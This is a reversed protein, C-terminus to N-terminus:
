GYFELNIVGQYIRQLISVHCIKSISELLKTPVTAMESQLQTLDEMAVDKPTSLDSEPYQDEEMSVETRSKISKESSPRRCFIIPM